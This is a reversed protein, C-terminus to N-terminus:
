RLGSQGHGRLSLTRRQPPSGVDGRHARRGCRRRSRPPTPARRPSCCTPPPSGRSPPRPTASFAPWSPIATSCAAGPTSSCSAAPPPKSWVRYRQESRLQRTRLVGYYFFVLGLGMTMELVADPLAVWVSQAGENQVYPLVIAYAGWALGIWGYPRPNGMDRRCGCRLIAWGICIYTAGVYAAPPAMRALAPAQLLTGAVSWASVLAAAWFWPHPVPQEMARYAAAVLLLGGAVILAQSLPWQWVGLWPIRTPFLCMWALCRLWWSLTSYTLFPAREGLYVYTMALALVFSGVLSISVFPAEFEPM